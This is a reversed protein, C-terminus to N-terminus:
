GRNLAEINGYRHKLWAHFQAKADPDFSDAAYENTNWQWGVVDPNHGFRKAMQEAIDHAFRRYRTSAFSFQQRNGHEDRVGDESVRLTDPYKQTLWAPPAATPTGLVVVIHHRAAAAIARDLWGFDYVGERPEMRSWAFEGIRVLHVHAAQM